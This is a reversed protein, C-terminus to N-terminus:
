NHVETRLANICFILFIDRKKTNKDSYDIIRIKNACYVQMFSITKLTSKQSSKIVGPLPTQSELMVCTKDM